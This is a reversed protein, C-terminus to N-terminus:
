PHEDRDNYEITLGDRWTDLQELNFSEDSHIYTTNLNTTERDYIVICPDTGVTIAATFGAPALSVRRDYDVWGDREWGVAFRHIIKPCRDTISNITDTISITAIVLRSHSHVIQESLAQPNSADEGLVAVAGIRMCGLVSEWWAICPPLIIYVRHGQRIGHSYLVHAVKESRLKLDQFTINATIGGFKQWRLAIKAPDVAATDVIDVAFNVAPITKTNVSM